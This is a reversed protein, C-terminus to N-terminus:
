GPLFGPQTAILVPVAPPNHSTIFHSSFAFNRHLIHASPTVGGGTGVVVGTGLQGSPQSEFLRILKQKLTLQQKM